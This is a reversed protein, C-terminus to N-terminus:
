FDLRLPLRAVGRREWLWCKWGEFLFTTRWTQVHGARPSMLLPFYSNYIVSSTSVNLSASNFAVRAVVSFLKPNTQIVEQEWEKEVCVRLRTTRLLPCHIGLPCKAIDPPTNPQWSSPPPAGPMQYASALSADLVRCHVPGSRCCDDPGFHWCHQQQFISSEGWIWKGEWWRGM